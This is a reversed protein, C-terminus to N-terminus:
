KNGNLLEDAFRDLLIYRYVKRNRLDRQCNQLKCPQPHLNPTSGFEIVKTSGYGTKGSRPDMDPKDPDWIRM